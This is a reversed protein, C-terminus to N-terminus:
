TTTLPRKAYILWSLVHKALERFGEEQGDIRKIAQEYTMDLGRMGEPLNRLALKIDGATPKSMLSDMHLQALLFRPCFSNILDLSYTELLVYMGDIAKAVERRVLDQLDSYKSIQSRLLQPIRGDLYRLIDNHQARIEKRICREFQLEIEPIFRSTAFINIHAQAQLNFISRLFLRRSDDSAQYEDLADIIIFVKAYM